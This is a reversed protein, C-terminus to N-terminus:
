FVSFGTGHTLANTSYYCQHVSLLNAARRAVNAVYWTITFLNIGQRWVNDRTWSSRYAAQFPELYFYDSSPKYSWTSFTPETATTTTNTTAHPFDYPAPIAPLIAAWVHDGIFTDFVELVLDM